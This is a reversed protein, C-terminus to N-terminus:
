AGHEAAFLACGFIPPTRATREQSQMTRELMDGGASAGEQGRESTIGGQFLLRGDSSYFMVEGSTRAGLGAAWRGNTDEIVRPHLPEFARNLRAGQKWGEPLRGPTYMLLVITAPVRSQQLIRRLEHITALSCTCQPHLAVLLVPLGKPAAELVGPPLMRGTLWEPARTQAGPTREYREMVCWGGALALLWILACSVSLWKQKM